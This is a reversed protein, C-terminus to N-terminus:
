SLKLNFSKKRLNKGLVERICGEMDMIESQKGNNDM